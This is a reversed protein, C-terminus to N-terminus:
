SPYGAVIIHEWGARAVCFAVTSGAVEAHVLVIVMLGARHDEWGTVFAAM